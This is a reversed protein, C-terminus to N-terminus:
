SRQDRGNVATLGADNTLGRPLSAAIECVSITTVIDFPGLLEHM